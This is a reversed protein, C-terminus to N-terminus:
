DFQAYNPWMRVLTKWLSSSSAKAEATDDEMNARDYKGEM